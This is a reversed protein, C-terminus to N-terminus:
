AAEKIGPKNLFFMGFGTLQIATGVILAAGIGISDSLATGILPALISSFYQLGQAMAIFTSSYEPPVTKMLEDFFVLNLGAVFIGNIGALVTIIGVEHTMAVLAPYIATGLTAWLLVPRTGRARSQRSWLFYGLIVIATQATNIVAIWSDSAQVVRVFYLPFLPLVLAQGSLFVFRKIVFSQFPKENRVLDSYERIQEKIKLRPGSRHAQIDGLTIRSSFYYSLLGGLSLVLFVLQYNRPFAIQELDLIQGILLVTLATTFGLISWRRTM